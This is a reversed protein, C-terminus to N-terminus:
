WDSHFYKNAEDIHHFVRCQFYLLKCDGLSRIVAGARQVSKWFRFNEGVVWLLKSNQQRLNHYLEILERAIQTTPAIPKESIVHKGALLAKRILNPAHSISVAISVADIDARKLLAELGTAEDTPTDYYAEVKDGAVAALAEASKRSRSYM